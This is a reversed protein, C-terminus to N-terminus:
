TVPAICNTGTKSIPGTNLRLSLAGSVNVYGDPQQATRILEIVEDVQRSLLTDHQTSLAYSAAELWKSIESEWPDSPHDTKAPPPTDPTRLLALRGTEVCRQYILPITVTRNTQLRPAWFADDIRVRAQPVPALPKKVPREM